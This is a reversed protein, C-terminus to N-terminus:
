VELLISVWSLGCGLATKYLVLPCCYQFRVGPSLVDTFEDPGVCQYKERSARNHDARNGIALEARDAGTQDGSQDDGNNNLGEPMDGARM